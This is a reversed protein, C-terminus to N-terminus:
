SAGDRRIATERRASRGNVTDDHPLWRTLNGSGERGKGHKGGEGVRPPGPRGNAAAPSLQRM